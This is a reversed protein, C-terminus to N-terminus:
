CYIYDVYIVENLEGLFIYIYNYNYLFDLPMYIYYTELLVQVSINRFTSNNCQPAHSPSLILFLIFPKKKQELDNLFVGIQM